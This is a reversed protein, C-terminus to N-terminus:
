GRGEAKSHAGDRGASLYPCALRRASLIAAAGAALLCCVRCLGRVFVACICLGSVIRDQGNMDCMCLRRNGDAGRDDQHVDDEAAEVDVHASFGRCAKSMTIYHATRQSARSESQAACTSSTRFGFSFGKTIRVCECASLTGAASRQSGLTDRM